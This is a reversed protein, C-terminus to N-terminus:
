PSLRRLIDAAGRQLLENALTEGLSQALEATSEQAMDCEIQGEARLMCRGDPEGLFGALSLRNKGVSALAGLPVQCSGELCASFAREATIRNESVVDNLSRCLALVQPDDARSQIGIAGQAPAPLWGEEDLPSTIRKALGLRILGASALVIAEYEGRDLKELRTDVNGRLDIVELDPRLAALQCRRRLSSTGIRSGAPLENLTSAHNCVFADRHDARELIACIKLGETDEAPVDKMSHVAIDAQGNLLAHELEKLFLGKGGVENLPRDIIRDGRTTLPLLAVKLEPHLERLRSRVHEAQWIALKSQRTAITVTSSM